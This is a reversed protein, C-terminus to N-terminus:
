AQRPASTSARVILETALEIRTAAPRRGRALDLVIRAAAAAM